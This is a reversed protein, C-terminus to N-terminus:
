IPPCDLQSGAPSWADVCGCTPKGSSMTKLLFNNNKQKSFCNVLKPQGSSITKLFKLKKTKKTEKEKKTKNRKQKEKRKKLKQLVKTACKTAYNKGVLSETM